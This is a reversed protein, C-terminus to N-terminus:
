IFWTACVLISGAASLEAQPYVKLNQTSQESRTECGVRDIHRAVTEKRRVGTEREGHGTRQVNKNYDAIVSQCNSETAQNEPPHAPEVVKLDLSSV